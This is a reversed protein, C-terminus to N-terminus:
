PSALVVRLPRLKPYWSRFRFVLVQLSATAFYLSYRQLRITNSSKRSCFLYSKFRVKVFELFKKM